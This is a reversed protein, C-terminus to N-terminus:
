ELSQLREKWWFIRIYSLAIRNPVAVFKSLLFNVQTLSDEFVQQIRETEITLAENRQKLDKFKLVITSYILTFSV